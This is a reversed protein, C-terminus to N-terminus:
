GDDDNIIVIAEICVDKLPESMYCLQVVFQEINESLNDDHITINVNLSSDM